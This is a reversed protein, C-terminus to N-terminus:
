WTTRQYMGASCVEASSHAVAGPREGRALLAGTGCAAARQIALDSSGGVRVGTLGIKPSRM